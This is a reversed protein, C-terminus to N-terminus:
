AIREKKAGSKRENWEAPTTLEFRRPGRRAASADRRLRVYIWGDRPAMTELKLGRREAYVLLVHRKAEPSTGRTVRIRVRDAPEEALYSLIQEIDEHLSVRAALKQWQEETVTEFRRKM